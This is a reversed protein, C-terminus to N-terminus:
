INRYRDKMQQATLIYSKINSVMDEFLFESCSYHLKGRLLLFKGNDAQEYYEGTMFIFKTKKFKATQKENIVLILSGEWNMLKTNEMTTFSSLDESVVIDNEMTEPTVKKVKVSNPIAALLKEIIENPKDTAIVFVTM